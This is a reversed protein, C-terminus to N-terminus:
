SEDEFIAWFKKVPSLNRWYGKSGKPTVLIDGPGARVVHGDGCDVEVEGEIIFAVEHYPREFYRSQEDRQWLGTSFAGTDFATSESGPPEVEEPGSWAPTWVAEGPRVVSVATSTGSGM